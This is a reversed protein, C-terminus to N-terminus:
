TPNNNKQHQRYKDFIEVAQEFTDFRCRKFFAKTRASPLFEHEFELKKNLCCGRRRVSYRCPGDHRPIREITTDEIDRDKTDLVSWTIPIWKDKNTSEM